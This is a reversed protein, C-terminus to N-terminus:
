GGGLDPKNADMGYLIASQIFAQADTIVTKGSTNMYTQLRSLHTEIEKFNRDLYVVADDNIESITFPLKVVSM